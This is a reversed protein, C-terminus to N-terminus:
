GSLGTSDLSCEIVNRAHGSPDPRDPGRRLFPHSDVKALGFSKGGSQPTGPNWDFRPPEDAPITLEEQM